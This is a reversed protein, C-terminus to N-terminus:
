LIMQSYQSNSYLWSIKTTKEKVMNIYSFIILDGTYLVTQLLKRDQYIVSLGHSSHIDVTSPVKYQYTNQLPLETNKTELHQRYWPLKMPRIHTIIPNVMDQYEPKYEVAWYPPRSVGQNMQTKLCSATEIGPKLIPLIAKEFMLMRIRFGSEKSSIRILGFDIHLSSYTSPTFLELVTYFNHYACLVLIGSSTATGIWRTPSKYCVLTVSKKRANSQKNERCM